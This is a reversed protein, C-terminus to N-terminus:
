EGAVLVARRRPRWARRGAGAQEHGPLTRSRLAAIVAAAGAAAAAVVFTAEPGASDAVAGAGAAGASTGLAMATTLWAFAETATGAPAVDNVMSYATALTPAIMTGAVVMAAGLAVLSGAVAALALHSAALAALLLALGAGTRAGGGARAAVVGGALSGLGWLGLLPGAAATRGFADAASAVAVEVAGFLVGVAVLVLVLTRMAPTRLVGGAARARNSPPRWRRSAPSAAFLVTATLLVIAAAALAAGTSWAAGLLLVMPPGCAWTAEVAAADVAYARRLAGGDPLLAPFLTRMCAAVPPTAIGLVAALVVLAWLPAGAPLAAIGALAAAAVLAPAVLLATQGRRDILRGLLPGGAGQAVALTGAVTGAAAFSGTLREVHVLVGISLMALPLRAVVSIAFLRQAGRSTQSATM